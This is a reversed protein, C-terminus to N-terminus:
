RRRLMGVVLGGLALVLASPEPVNIFPTPYEQIRLMPGTTGSPAPTVWARKLISLVDGPMVPQSFNFLNLTQTGLGTATYGINTGNIDVNLVSMWYYAASGSPPALIHEHWDGWAETGTNVIMEFITLPGPATIEGNPDNISKTWPQGTPDLDIPIEAGPAGMSVSAGFGGTTVTHITHPGTSTGQASVSECLLGSSLILAVAFLQRTKM